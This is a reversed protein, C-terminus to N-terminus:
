IFLYLRTRSSRTEEYDFSEVKSASSKKVFEKRPGDNQQSLDIIRKEEKDRFNKVISKKNKRLVTRKEIKKRGQKKVQAQAGVSLFLLIIFLQKM